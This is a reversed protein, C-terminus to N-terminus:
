ASRVDATLLRYDEIRCAIGFFGDTAAEARVVMVRCELMLTHHESQPDYAPLKLTCLLSAGPILPSPSFCYFGTSSLNQTVTEIADAGRAQLLLVPWHVQTRARRRREPRFSADLVATDRANARATLVDIPNASM